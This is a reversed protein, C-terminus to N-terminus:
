NIRYITDWFIVDGTAWTMPITSSINSWSAYTGATNQVSPFFATGGANIQALGTYSGGASVDSHSVTGVTTFSFPSLGGVTPNIPFTFSVNGVGFTTTSGFVLKGYYHVLKNAQCYASTLTGNGVTLNNVTPTFATYTGVITNGIALKTQVAEMADNIDSHQQAHSPATLPNAAIPNTFSDLSTPYTSAM